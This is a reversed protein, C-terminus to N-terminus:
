PKAESKPAVSAPAKRDYGEQFAEVNMAPVAIKIIKRAENVWVDVNLPPATAGPAFKVLVHTLEAKKDAFEVEERGKVIVTVPVETQGLIYANFMQPDNVDLKARLALMSWAFLPLNANVMLADAHVDDEKLQPGQGTNMENKAKGDAFTVSDEMKIQGMQAKAQVSLPQFKDDTVVIFKEINVKMVGLDAIGTGSLEVKGDAQTLSYSESAVAKPGMYITFKGGLNEAAPCLAALLLGSIVLSNRRLQSTM